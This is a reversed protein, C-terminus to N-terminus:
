DQQGDGAGRNLLRLLEETRVDLDDLILELRNIRGALEVMQDRTPTNTWESASGALQNLGQRLPTTIDLATKAARAAVSSFGESAVLEEAVNGAIELARAITDRWVELISRTTTPEKSPM